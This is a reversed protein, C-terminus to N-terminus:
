FNFFVDVFPGESQSSATIDQFADLHLQQYQWGGNLGFGNRSQYSLMAKYDYASSNEILMHKGEVGASLGNWPLDYLATAYMMPLTANYSQASVVGLQDTTEQVGNIFKINVGLDFNFKGKQFPYYFTADYQSLITNDADDQSLSYKTSNPSIVINDFESMWSSRTNSHLQYNPSYQREFKVSLRLPDDDVSTHYGSSLYNSYTSEEASVTVPLLAASLIGISLIKFIKSNLM